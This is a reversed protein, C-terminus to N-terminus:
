GRGYMWFIVELMGLVFGQFIATLFLGFVKTRMKWQIWSV